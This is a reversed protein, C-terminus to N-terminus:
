NLPTICVPALGDGIGNLLKMPLIALDIIRGAIFPGRDNIRVIVKRSNRRHHVCVRSNFRYTKHAATMSHPNFREGNATRSGYNYTSAIGCEAAESNNIFLIFILVFFKSCMAIFESKFASGSPFHL